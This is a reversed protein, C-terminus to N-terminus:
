MWNGLYSRLTGEDDDEEVVADLRGRLDDPHVDSMMSDNQGQRTNSAQSSLGVGGDLMYNFDEDTFTLLNNQNGDENGTNDHLENDEFTM